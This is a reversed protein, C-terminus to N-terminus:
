APNGVGTTPEEQMIEMLEQEGILAVLERRIADRRHSTRDLEVYALTVSDIAGQYQALILAQKLIKNQM